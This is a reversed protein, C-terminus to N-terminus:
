PQVKSTIPIPKASDVADPWWWDWQTHNWYQDAALEGNWAAIDKAMSARSIPDAHQYAAELANRQQLFTWTGAHTIPIFLVLFCAIAFAGMAIVGPWDM